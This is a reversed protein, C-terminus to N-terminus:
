IEVRLDSNAKCKGPVNPGMVTSYLHSASLGSPIKGSGSACMWPVPLLPFSKKMHNQGELASLFVFHLSFLFSLLSPGAAKGGTLRKM